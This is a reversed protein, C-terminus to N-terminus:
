HFTVTFELLESSEVEERVDGLVRTSLRMTTSSLSWRSLRVRLKRSKKWYCLGTLPRSGSNWTIGIKLMEEGSKLLKIMCGDKGLPAQIGLRGKQVGMEMSVVKGTGTRETV